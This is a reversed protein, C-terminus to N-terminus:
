AGGGQRAPVLARYAAVPCPVGLNVHQHREPEGVRWSAHCIRCAQLRHGVVPAAMAEAAALIAAGREPVPRGFPCTAHHSGQEPWDPEGTWTGACLRCSKGGRALRFGYLEALAVLAADRERALRDITELHVPSTAQDRADVEVLLAAYKPELDALRARLKDVEAVLVHLDCNECGAGQNEPRLWARLEALREDTLAPVVYEEPTESM